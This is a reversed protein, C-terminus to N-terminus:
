EKGMMMDFWAKEEKDMKERQLDMVQGCSPCVQWQENTKEGLPRISPLSCNPCIYVGIM